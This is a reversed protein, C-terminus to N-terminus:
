AQPDPADLSVGTGAQHVTVQTFPIVWGHENCVDVCVKQLLRGIAKFRHAVEGTFDALIAYDLSSSGAAEFEVNLNQVAEHGFAELLTAELRAALVGPVELTSIAQHGYDIGFTSSVRFGTSLNEPSLSLFESTPYTKRSGGLRLVTVREPTQQVVKGYTEDGLIVWDNEKTPFWPEKRHCPRSHLGNVTRIPLRLVAGGLLPNTFRCYIGLRDVRWPVGDYVLREGERVPGLNLMTRVQDIYPVLSNRSAILLGAILIATVTLLLWDGRLYFVILAAGIGAVVAAIVAVLDVLRATLRTEGKRHFPSMRKLLRYLRRVLISSVIFAGIAMLLNLGRSKWFRSIANSISELVSPAQRDREALKAEIVAIRGAAEDLREQWLSRTSKIQGVIAEDLDERKLLEDLRRVASDALDRRSTATALGDRLEEMERPASTADRLEELVPKLIEQFEQNFSTSGTQDEFYADEDVGSAITRFNNRLEDMRQRVSAIEAEIKEREVDSATDELRQRLDDLTAQERKLLPITSQLAELTKDPPSTAEEQGRLLALPALLALLLTFFLGPTRRRMM